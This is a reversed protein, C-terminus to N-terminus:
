TLARGKLVMDAILLPMLATGFIASRTTIAPALRAFSAPDTMLRPFRARFPRGFAEIAFFLALAALAAAPGAVADGGGSWGRQLSFIVTLLGETRIVQGAFRNM